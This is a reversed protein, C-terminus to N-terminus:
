QLFRAAMSLWHLIVFCIRFWCYCFVNSKIVKKDWHLAHFVQATERSFTLLWLVANGLKKKENKWHPTTKHKWVVPQWVEKVVSPYTIKLMCVFNPHTSYVCLPTLCLCTQVLNSELSLFVTRWGARGLSQVSLTKLRELWQGVDGRM